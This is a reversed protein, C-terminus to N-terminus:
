QEAPMELTDETIDLGGCQDQGVQDSLFVPSEFLGAVMNPFVTRLDDGIEPEFPLQLHILRVHSFM